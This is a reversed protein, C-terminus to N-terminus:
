KVEVVASSSLDVVDASNLSHIILLLNAEFLAILKTNSINGTTLFLLKYPKQVASFSDFFDSDKSIVVRKEEISIANIEADTSRNKKPLDSTHITDFGRDNLFQALTKPLQTDILFKM